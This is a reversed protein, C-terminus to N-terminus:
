LTLISQYCGLSVTQMGSPGALAEAVAEDLPQAQGGSQTTTSTGSPCHPSITTFRLFFLSQYDNIIQLSSSRFHGTSFSPLYKQVEIEAL